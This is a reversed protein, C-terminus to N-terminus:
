RGPLAEYRTPTATRAAQGAPLGGPGVWMEVSDGSRAWAPIVCMHWWVAKTHTNPGVSLDEQKYLFCKVRQARELGPDIKSFQHHGLVCCSSLSMDM